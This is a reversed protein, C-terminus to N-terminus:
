KTPFITIVAREFDDRVVERNISVNEAHLDLFAAILDSAESHTVTILGRLKSEPTLLVIETLGNM